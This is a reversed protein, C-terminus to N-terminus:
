GGENRQAEVFARWSAEDEFEIPMGQWDCDRCHALNFELGAGVAGESAKIGRLDLSGCRMCAKMGRM